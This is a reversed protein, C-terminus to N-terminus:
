VSQEGGDMNNSLTGKFVTFALLWVLITILSFFLGGFDSAFGGVVFVGGAVTWSILYSLLSDRAVPIFATFVLALLLIVGHLLTRGLETDLGLNRIVTETAEEITVLVEIDYRDIVIMTYDTPIVDVSVFPVFLPDIEWSVVVDPFATNNVTYQTDRRDSFAYITSDLFGSYVERSRMGGHYADWVQSTFQKLTFVQTGAESVPDLIQMEWEASSTSNQPTPDNSVIWVSECDSVVTSTGDLRYCGYAGRIDTLTAPGNDDGFRMPNLFSSNTFSADAKEYNIFPLQGEGTNIIVFSQFATFTPAATSGPTFQYAAIADLDLSMAATAGVGEDLAILVIADSTPSTYGAPDFQFHLIAFDGLTTTSQCPIFSHHHGNFNLDNFVVSQCDNPAAVTNGIVQKTFESFAGLSSEWEVTATPDGDVNIPPHIFHKGLTFGFNDIVYVPGIYNEPWVGFDIPGAGFSWSGTTVGPGLVKFGIRDLPLGTELDVTYISWSYSQSSDLGSFEYFIVDDSYLNTANYEWTYPATQAYVTFNDTYFISVFAVVALIILKLKM